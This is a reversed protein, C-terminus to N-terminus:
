TDLEPWNKNEAFKGAARGFAHEKNAGLTSRGTIRSVLKSTKSCNGHTYYVAGFFM